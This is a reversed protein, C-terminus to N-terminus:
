NHLIIALIANALFEIDSIENYVQCSVRVYYEGEAGGFAGIDYTPVWTDYQSLLQLPISNVLTENQTPLRVDVMAAYRSSDDEFLVNTKFIKAMLHGAKVALEHMYQHIKKEGGLFERFVLADNMALYPSYSSTGQYAFAKQFHSPYVSSGEWSITTPEILSQVDKRVYLVASGKPSYLWKHGNGVYFDANYAKMDLSIQGLAHAGDILVLVGYQHCLQILEKIPLIMAPLSVIHSFSAVKVAGKNNELATRVADLISDKTGPMKIDVQLLSDDNFDHLYKITNKVMTYAVNLFLIKEGLKIKLSRLIANVGHSANPVFVIEDPDANIYKAFVKRLEDMKDYIVYRFWEDPRQEMAMEYSEAAKLVSLSTAGYSGHNLNVYSKNLAFYQLVNHGFPVSAQKAEVM